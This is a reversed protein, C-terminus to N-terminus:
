LPGPHSFVQGSTDVTEGCHMVVKGKFDRTYDADTLLYM